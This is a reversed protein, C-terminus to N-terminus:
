SREAETRSLGDSHVRWPLSDWAPTLIFEFPTVEGDSFVIAEPQEQATGTQEDQSAPPQAPSASSLTIDEPLNHPEFPKREIPQWRGFADDYSVFSYSDPQIFLGWTQNRQLTEDRSLELTLALRQAETKLTQERDAGMFTLVVTAALIGIMAVVILMELLTFGTSNRNIASPMGFKRLPRSAFPPRLPNDSTRTISM